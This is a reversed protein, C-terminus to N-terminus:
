NLNVSSGNDALSINDGSSATIFKRFVDYHVKEGNGTTQNRTKEAIAAYIKYTGTPKTGVTKVEVTVARNTGSTEKVIVEIPSTKALEANLLTANVQSASKKTLGNIMVTPTSTINYYSARENNETKNAQYFVCSSYPFSPHISLHHYSGAYNSLLSYFGPNSAGCVGCQSNTVQDLFIYRKAQGNLGQMLALLM